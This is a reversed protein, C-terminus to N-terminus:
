APRAHLEDLAPRFRSMLSGLDGVLDPCSLASFNMRDVYSWATVNLGIGELIPGVSYLDSLRARDIQAPERPGPVNSVIVNFPAAHLSAARSRSYLRMGASFPAPPTFQVWDALMDLGLTNQVQKAEGTTRSILQLRAIPDDVDTALTTFLNSVRNGGLRPPGGRQDTGVPVGALLSSTPREGRADMWSRLAGAVVALVVDNVSVGHLRRVAQIEDLPLSCTAFVRRSSLPGNFSVRPADLVPRPTPVISRRKHRAVAVLARVTRWVLGPVSGIQVIADALASRVLDARGPTPELGLGATAQHRGAAAVDTVNALLANAANGDAVAHHLKAVTALRGEALGDCLHIEWLPVDRALPTSAIRGIVEELEALGGPAPVHHHFFHRKPDIPRDAVWVPHNLAFPVPLVRRRLPPLDDLRDLLGTSFAALDLGPAPEILAVKLTHMHQTPTEMYLYGADVGEM